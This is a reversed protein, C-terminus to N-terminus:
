DGRAGPAETRQYHRKPFFSASFRLFARNPAMVLLSPHPSLGLLIRIICPGGRLDNTVEDISFNVNAMEHGLHGAEFGGVLWGMLLFSQKSLLSIDQNIASSREGGIQRGSVIDDDSLFGQRPRM